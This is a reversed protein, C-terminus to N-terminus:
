GGSVMLFLAGREVLTRLLAAPGWHMGRLATVGCPATGSVLKQEINADPPWCNLVEAEEKALAFKAVTTQM